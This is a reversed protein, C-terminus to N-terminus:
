VSIEDALGLMRMALPHPRARELATRSESLRGAREFALGAFALLEHRDGPVCQETGKLLLRAAEDWDGRTARVLGLGLWTFSRDPRLLALADFIRQARALAEPQAGARALALYGVETLDKITDPPLLAAEPSL